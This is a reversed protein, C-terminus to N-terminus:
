RKPVNVGFRKTCWRSVGLVRTDKKPSLRVKRYAKMMENLLRRNLLRKPSLKRVAMLRNRGKVSLRLRQKRSHKRLYTLSRKQQSGKTRETRQPLRNVVLHGKPLRKTGAYLDNTEITETTPQIVDERVVDKTGQTPKTGKYVITPVSQIVTQETSSIVEDTREGKVVRYVTTVRKLGAQGSVIEEDGEYLDPAYVDLTDPEVVEESHVEVSSEVPKIGKMVLTSEAERIITETVDLVQDTRKGYLTKYTTKAQKLGARGPIREIEGVYM